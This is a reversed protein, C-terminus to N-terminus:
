VTASADRADRVCKELFSRGYGTRTKLADYDPRWAADTRIAEVLEAVVETRAPRQTGPADTRPKGGKATRAKMRDTRAGATHLTTRAGGPAPRPSSPAAPRPGPALAPRGPIILEARPAPVACSPPLLLGATGPLWGDVAEPEPEAATEAGQSRVLLVSDSVTNDRNDRSSLAVTVPEAAVPPTVPEPAQPAAPLEDKVDAPEGGEAPAQSVLAPADEPEAVPEAEPQQADAPAAAPAIAAQGRGGTGVPLAPAAEARVPEPLAQPTRVPEVTRVSETGLADTRLAYPAAEAARVSETHIEAGQGTRPAEDMRAPHGADETRHSRSEVLVAVALFSVAPWAAMLKGWAGPAATALNTALSMSVGLLLVVIAIWVPEGHSRRRKIEAVSAFALLEVSVAIATSVWGTQGHEAAVRMVHTFSVSFAATGLVLAVGNAVLADSKRATTPKSV